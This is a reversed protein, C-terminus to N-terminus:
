PIMDKGSRHRPRDIFGMPHQTAPREVIFRGIHAACNAVVVVRLVAVIVDPKPNPKRGSEERIVSDAPSAIRDM